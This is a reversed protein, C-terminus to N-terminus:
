VTKLNNEFHVNLVGKLYVIFFIPQSKVGFPCELTRVFCWDMPQGSDKQLCRKPRKYFTGQGM